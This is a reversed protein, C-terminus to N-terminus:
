RREDGRREERRRAKKKGRSERSRGSRGRSRADRAMREGGEYRRDRRAVCMSGVAVRSSGGCLESLRVGVHYMGVPWGVDVDRGSGKEAPGDSVYWRVLLKLGQLNRPARAQRSPVSYLYSLQGGCGTGAAAGGTNREQM